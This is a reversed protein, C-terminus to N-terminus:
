AAETPVDGVTALTEVAEWVDGDERCDIKFFVLGDVRAMMARGRRFATAENACRIIDAAELGSPRRTFPAVCYLQPRAPKQM